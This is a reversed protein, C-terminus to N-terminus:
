IYIIRYVDWIRPIQCGLSRLIIFRRFTISKEYNIYYNVLSALMLAERNLKLTSIELNIV